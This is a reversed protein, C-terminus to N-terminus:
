NPTGNRQVIIKICDTQFFELKRIFNHFDTLEWSHLMVTMNIPLKCANVTEISVISKLLDVRYFPHPVAQLRYIALKQVDGKCM